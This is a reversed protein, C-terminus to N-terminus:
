TPHTFISLSIFTPSKLERFNLSNRAPLNRGYETKTGKRIAIPLDLNYKSKEGKKKEGHLIIEYLQLIM